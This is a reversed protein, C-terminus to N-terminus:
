HLSRAFTRNRLLDAADPREEALEALAQVLEEYFDPGASWGPWGCVAVDGLELDYRVSFGCLMPLREFLAVVHKALVAEVYERPEERSPSEAKM